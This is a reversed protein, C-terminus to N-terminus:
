KAAHSCGAAMTASMRVPNLDYRVQSIGDAPHGAAASFRARGPQARECMPESCRRLPRCSSWESQARRNRGSARADSQGTGPRTGRVSPRTKM